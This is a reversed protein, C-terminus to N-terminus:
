SVPLTKPTTITTSSANLLHTSTPTNMFVNHASENEVYKKKEAQQEKFEPELETLREALHIRGLTNAYKIALSLITPLGIM